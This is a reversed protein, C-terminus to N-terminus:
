EFRLSSIIGAQIYFFWNAEAIHRTTPNAPQIFIHWFKSFLYDNKPKSLCDNQRLLYSITGILRLQKKHQLQMQATKTLKSTDCHQGHSLSFCLTLPWRLLHMALHSEVKAAILRIKNYGILCMVAPCVHVCIPQILENTDVLLTSLTDWWGGM